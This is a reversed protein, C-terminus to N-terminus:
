EVESKEWYRYFAFFKILSKDIVDFGVIIIGLLKM